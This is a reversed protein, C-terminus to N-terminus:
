TSKDIDVIKEGVVYDQVRYKKVAGIKRAITNLKQIQEELRELKDAVLSDQEVAACIDRLLNNIVMLPQNMNHAIGGAMELVGQFKERALRHKLHSIRATVDRARSVIHHPKGQKKVLTAQFEMQHIKRDRDRVALIGELRESELINSLLFDFEDQYHSLVHNALSRGIIEQRSYGLMSTGADNVDLINGQLDLMLNMTGALGSLDIPLQEEQSRSGSERVFGDFYVVIGDDDPVAKATTLCQITQGDKRRLFLPFEKVCGQEIISRVIQGRDKKNVYFDIVRLDRLEYPDQFGLMQAFAENCFLLTGELTTRFIGQPFHEIFDVAWLTFHDIIQEELQPQPMHSSELQNAPIQGSRSGLCGTRGGDPFGLGTQAGSAAHLRPDPALPSHLDSGPQAPVPGAAWADVPGRHQGGARSRPHM